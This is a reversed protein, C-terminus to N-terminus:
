LMKLKHLKLIAVVCADIPNDAYLYLTVIGLNEFTCCWMDTLHEDRSDFTSSLFSLDVLGYEKIIDLLAVLSWCPLVGYEELFRIHGERLIMPYETDVIDKSYSEDEPEKNYFMDASELPLIEALKRSQSIDTYSKITAM